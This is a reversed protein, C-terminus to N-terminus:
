ASIIHSIQRATSVGERWLALNENRNGGFSREEGSFSYSRQACLRPRQAEAPLGRWCGWSRPTGAGQQRGTRARQPSGPLGGTGAWGKEWGPGCLGTRWGRSTGGSGQTGATLLVGRTSTFGMWLGRGTPARAAVGVDCDKGPSLSPARPARTLTRQRHCDAMQSCLGPVPSFAVLGNM